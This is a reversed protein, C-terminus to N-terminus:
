GALRVALGLLMALIALAIVFLVTVMLCSGTHNDYYAALGFLSVLAVAVGAAPALAFAATTLLFAIAPPAWQKPDFRGRGM